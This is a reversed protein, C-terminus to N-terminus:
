CTKFLKQYGKLHTIKAGSFKEKRYSKQTIYILIVVCLFNTFTKPYKVNFDTRTLEIIDSRKKSKTGFVFLLKNVYM